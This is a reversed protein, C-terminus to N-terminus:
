GTKAFSHPNGDGSVSIACVLFPPADGRTGLFAALTRLTEAPEALLQEYSVTCIESASLKGV